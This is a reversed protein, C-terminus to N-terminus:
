YLFISVGQYKTFVSSLHKSLELKEMEYIEQCMEDAYMLYSQNGDFSLGVTECRIALEELEATIHVDAAGNTKKKLFITFSKNVDLGRSKGWQYLPIKDGDVM